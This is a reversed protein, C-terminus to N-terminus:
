LNLLKEAAKRQQLALELLAIQSSKMEESQVGELMLLGLKQELVPIGYGFAEIFAAVETPSPLHPTRLAIVGSDYEAAKVLNGDILCCDRNSTGDGTKVVQSAPQQKARAVKEERTGDELSLCDVTWVTILSFGTDYLERSTINTDEVVDHLLACAGEIEGYGWARVIDRVSKPHHIYHDKGYWQGRHAENALKFAKRELPTYRIM